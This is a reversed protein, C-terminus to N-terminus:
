LLVGHARVRRSKGAIKRKTVLDNSLLVLLQDRRLPLDLLQLVPEIQQQSPDVPRPALPQKIRVLQRQELDRPLVRRRGNDGTRRAIRLRGVLTDCFTGTVAAAREGLAQFAPPDHQVDGFRILSAGTALQPPHDAFDDGLPQAEIRRPEVHVLVHLQFVGARAFLRAHQRGLFRDLRDLLAVGLRFQHGERGDATEVVVRGIIALFVALEAARAHLNCPARLAVPHPLDGLKAPRQVVQHMGHYQPRLQQAGVVRRYRHQHGASPLRLLRPHPSIAAVM